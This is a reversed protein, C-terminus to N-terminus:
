PSSAEERRGSLAKSTGFVVAGAGGLVLVVYLLIRVGDAGFAGWLASLISKAVDGAAGAAAGAVDSVAGGVIDAGASIPTIQRGGPGPTSAPDDLGTVHWPQFGAKTHSAWGPGGGANSSSTGFDQGDITAFMHVDNGGVRNVDDNWFTLRGSPDAGPQMYDPATATTFYPVDYGAKILLDACTSSCDYGGSDSPPRTNSYPAGVGNLRTAEARIADIRAWQRHGVGTAAGSPM